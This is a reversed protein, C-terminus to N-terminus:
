ARPTRLPRPLGCGKKWSPVARLSRGLEAQCWALLARAFVAPLMLQDFREHRRAGDFFAVSPM